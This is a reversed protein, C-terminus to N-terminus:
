TGQFWHIFETIALYAQAATDFENFQARARRGSKLSIPIFWGSKVQRPVGIRAIQGATKILTAELAVRGDEDQVRALFFDRATRIDGLERRACHEMADTQVRGESKLDWNNDFDRLWAIDAGGLGRYQGATRWSM